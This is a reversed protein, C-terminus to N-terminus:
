NSIDRTLAEGDRGGLRGRVGLVLSHTNNTVLKGSQQPLQKPLVKGDKVWKGQIPAPGIRWQASYQCGLCAIRTLAQKRQGMAAWAGPDVDRASVWLPSAKGALDLLFTHGTLM